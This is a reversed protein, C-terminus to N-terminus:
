LSRSRNSISNSSGKSGMSGGGVGCVLGWVLVGGVGVCVVCGPRGVRGGVVSLGCREQWIMWGWMDACCMDVPQIRQM